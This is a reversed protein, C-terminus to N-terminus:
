RDSEEDRHSRVVEVSCDARTAVAESVSGLLFRDLANMGSSGVFISDAGQREAAELLVKKPDGEVLSVNVGLGTARLESELSGTSEQAKALEQDIWQNIVGVMGARAVASVSPVASLLLVQTGDPWRRGAVARAAAEAEASGDVGVIIKIPSELPIVRGRAVRVSCPARQLVKQSVSGLLLLAAGTRGRSGVVILDPKWERAGALIVSAPSGGQAEARVEWSPFLERLCEGARRALDRTEDSVSRTSAPSTPMKWYSTPAPPWQEDVTIVVAEAESPLGARQLDALMADACNSGDYGILIKMKDTM